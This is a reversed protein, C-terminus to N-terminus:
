AATQQTAPVNVTVTETITTPALGSTPIRYGAQHCLVILGAVLAQDTINGTATATATTLALSTTTTTLTAPIGTLMALAGITVMPTELMAAAMATSTVVVYVRGSDDTRLEGDSAGAYITTVTTAAPTVTAPISTTRTLTIITPSTYNATYPHSFQQVLTTSNLWTTNNVPPTHGAALAIGAILLSKYFWLM